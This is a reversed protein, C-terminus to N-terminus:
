CSDIAQAYLAARAQYGRPTAHVGDGGVWGPHAAVERAWPVIRVIGPLSPDRALAELRANAAAYSVGGVPPRM